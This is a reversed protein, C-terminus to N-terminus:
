SPASTTSRVAGRLAWLVELFTRHQKIKKPKKSFLAM